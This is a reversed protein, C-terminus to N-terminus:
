KRIRYIVGRGFQGGRDTTGYLWGDTGEVLAGDPNAGDRGTFRHITTFQGSPTIRFVTGCGLGLIGVGPCQRFLGGSYTTGYFNGDSAQMLPGYPEEGNLGGSFEHLKTYQGSTAIRYVVGCGRGFAGLCKTRDGGTTRTGYLNGDTAQIVGSEAIGGDEGTFSHLTSYVGAPTIKFISGFATTSGGQGVAGYLNGDSAEIVGQPLIGETPNGGVYTKLITLSEDPVYRYIGGFPSGETAGLLDGNAAAELSVTTHAAGWPIQFVHTLTDGTIGFITGASNAGGAATSGYFGGVGDPVLGTRPNAGAAYTFQHLVTLGQAISFRFATGCGFSSCGSQFVGGAYTAGYFVGSGAPTLGLPAEGQPGNFYHLTELRATQSLALSCCAVLLGALRVPSDFIM